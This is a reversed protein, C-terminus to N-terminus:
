FPFPYEKPEFEILELENLWNYEPHINLEIEMQSIVWNDNNDLIPYFTSGMGDYDQGQLQEAQEATLIAVLM